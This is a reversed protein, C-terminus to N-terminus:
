SQIEAALDIVASNLSGPERRTRGARGIERVVDDLTPADADIMNSARALFPLALEFKFIMSKLFVPNKSIGRSPDGQVRTWAQAYSVNLTFIDRRVRAPIPALLADLEAATLFEGEVIVVSVGSDFFANSLGAAAAGNFPSQWRSARPVRAAV